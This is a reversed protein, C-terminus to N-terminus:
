FAPIKKTLIDWFMKFDGMLSYIPHKFTAPKNKEFVFHGLWAFGYGVIPLLPLLRFDRTFLSAGLIFIVFCTGIFHLRRSVLNSHEKLYYPYFEKFSNFKM